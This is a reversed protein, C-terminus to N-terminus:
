SPFASAGHFKRRAEALADVDGVNGPFVVYNIGPFRTEPGLQWVPVGPLIQGRVISRVVGLGRTAVDSSTIGGKAIVFRPRITIRRVLEVVADSVRQGLQLNADANWATVVQRSTFVVADEGAALSTGVQEAAREITEARRAPDLLARIELEVARPPSEAQLLRELQATTKPVHSGVVILGGAHDTATLELSSLPPQPPQGLRANIFSAATRYLYNKGTREAAITGAAVVDMDSPAAANVICVAGRPLALLADAVADPGGRRVRELSLSHVADAPIRGGTKEEVWARLDSTGYHFAADRAFPTDAAPVLEDGDAVYHVNDITYRGGAEFYPALLTADFPGLIAALADTEVPFHGRLTSDSRSVVTFPRRALASATRLNRALELTLERAALSPLSRSNTLVFFCRPARSLEGRLTEIRWDTVVAVDHVTQTGTPDDDLVVLTRGADSAAAQVPSLRRPWEPLLTAFTDSRSRRATLM